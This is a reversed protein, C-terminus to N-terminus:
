DVFDMFGYIHTHGYAYINTHIYIHIYTYIHAHIHTHIINRQLVKVLVSGLEYSFDRRKGM